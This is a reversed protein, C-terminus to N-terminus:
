KYDFTYCWELANIADESLEPHLQRFRDAATAGMESLTRATSRAHSEHSWANPVLVYPLLHAGGEEGDAAILRDDGRAPWPADGWGTWAVIARSLSAPDPGDTRSRDM